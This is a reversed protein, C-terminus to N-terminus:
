YYPNMFKVIGPVMTPAPGGCVCLQYGQLATLRHAPRKESFFAAGIVESKQAPLDRAAELVRLTIANPGSWHYTRNMPFGKLRQLALFRQLM